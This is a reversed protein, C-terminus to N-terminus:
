HNHRNKRDLLRATAVHHNRQGSAQKTRPKKPGRQSLPYEALWALGAAAELFEAFEVESAMRFREWERPPRAIMLGESTSAVEEALHDNSVKGEVPEVGHASRLAARVAAVANSAVLATCFGFLAAKPDALTDIEWRLAEVWTQFGKELTWRQRYITALMRGEAVEAPVDSLLFIETEGDRTPQDLVLRLRRITLTRAQGPEDRLVRGREDIDTLRIAQESVEGTEIRGSETWGRTEEWRLTSKHPRVRFRGRRDVV